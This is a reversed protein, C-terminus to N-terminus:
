LDKQTTRPDLQLVAQSSGSMLVYGDKQGPEGRNMPLRRMYHWISLALLLLVAAFYLLLSGPMTLDMLGGALTPGITAGMGYLLLLGGTAQLVRSRDILDNVHAVSLGYIAFTLGGYIV